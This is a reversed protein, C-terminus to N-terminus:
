YCMCTCHWMQVHMCTCVYEWLSNDGCAFSFMCVHVHINYMYMHVCRVHIYMDVATGTAPPQQPYGTPPPAGYSQAPPQQPYSTPPAGYPAQGPVSPPPSPSLPSLALALCSPPHTSIFTCVYIIFLVCYVCVVMTAHLLRATVHIIFSRPDCYSRQVWSYCICTYVHTHPLLFHFKPFITM